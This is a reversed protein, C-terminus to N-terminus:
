CGALFSLRADEIQIGPKRIGWWEDGKHHIMGQVLSQRYRNLIVKTEIGKKLFFINEM